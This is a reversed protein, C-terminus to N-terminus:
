RKKYLCPKLSISKNATGKKVFKLKKFDMLYFMQSLDRKNLLQFGHSCVSALFSSLGKFRSSVEVIKLLGDTKLVRNAECVYDDLNTGMLSLCFVAIDVSENQLPVSSMDCAKVRPNLAVLDFSHVKQPVAQALKADGCGFDAIVLNPSKDKIQKILVNVPNVPWKSAQNEFGTHYVEFAERDERFLQLAERGQCTYLQENIYRFRAANLKEQAQNGLTSAKDGWMSKKKGANNNSTEKNELEKLSVSTDVASSAKSISNKEKQNKLNVKGPKTNNFQKMNSTPDQLSESKKKKRNQREKMNGCDKDEHSKDSKGLAQLLLKQRQQLELMKKPDAKEGTKTSCGEDGADQTATTEAESSKRTKVKDKNKKKAKPSLTERSSQEELSRIAKRKKAPILLTDSKRKNNKSIESSHNGACEKTEEPMTDLEKNKKKKKKTQIIDDQLNADTELKSQKTKEEGTGNAITTDICQTVKEEKATKDTKNKQVPQVTSPRTNITSPNNESGNGSLGVIISNSSGECEKEKRNLALHAYKNKKSNNKKKRNRKRKKKPTEVASVSSPLNTDSDEDKEKKLKRKKKQAGSSEEDLEDSANKRKKSKKVKQDTVDSHIETETSSDQKGPKILKSALSNEHETKDDTSATSEAVANGGDKKEQKKKRRRKEKLKRLGKKTFIEDDSDLVISSGNTVDATAKEQRKKKKTEGFLSKNLNDAELSVDWGGDSDFEFM